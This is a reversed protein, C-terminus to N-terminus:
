FDPCNFVRRICECRQRFLSSGHACWVKQSCLLDLTVTSVFSMNKKNWYRAKKSAPFSQWLLRSSSSPCPQDCCNEFCAKSFGLPGGPAQHPGWLSCFISCTCWLLLTYWGQQSFGELRKWSSQQEKIIPFLLYIAWITLLAQHKMNVKVKYRKDELTFQKNGM